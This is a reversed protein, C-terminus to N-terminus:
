RFSPHAFWTRTCTYTTALTTRTCPWTNFMDWYLLTVQMCLESMAVNATGMHQPTVTAFTGVFGRTSTWSSVFSFVFTSERRVTLNESCVVSMLRDTSFNGVTPEEHKREATHSLSPSSQRIKKSGSWTCACAGFALLDAPIQCQTKRGKRYNGGKLFVTKAHFETREASKRQRFLKGM